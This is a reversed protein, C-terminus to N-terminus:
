VNSYTIIKCEIGMGKCIHIMNLSGKSIGDWFVIALSDTKEKLYEGMQLNRKFGASKGFRNWDAPFEKLTFEREFCYREGLTDAGRAKGSIIEVGDFNEFSLKNELIEDCKEKLFDYNDFNRSGAILIRRM